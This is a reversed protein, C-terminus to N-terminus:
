LDIREGEVAVRMGAAEIAAREPSGALAAPNSHNLHTFVVKRREAAPLKAFRAISEVVFPHPVESIARGPLEGEGYFTADIEVTRYRTAYFKLMDEAPLKPPYFVGYWDKSSFSSTGLLLEKPLKSEPWSGPEEPFPLRNQM